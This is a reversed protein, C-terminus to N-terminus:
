IFIYFAKRKSVELLNFNFCTSLINAGAKKQLKESDYLYADASIFKGDASIFKGDASKFNGDASM